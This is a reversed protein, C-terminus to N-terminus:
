CSRGESPSISTRQACGAGPRSVSLNLSSSLLQVLMTIPAEHLSIPLDISFVILSCEVFKSCRVFNCSALLGSQTGFFAFSAMM